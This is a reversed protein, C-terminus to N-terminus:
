AARARNPISPPGENPNNTRPTNKGCAFELTREVSYNYTSYYRFIANNISLITVILIDFPYVIKM